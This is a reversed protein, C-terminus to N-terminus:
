SRERLRRYMMLGAGSLMASAAITVLNLASFGTVALEPEPTPSPAPPIVISVTVTEISGTYFESNSVATASLVVDQSQTAPTQAALTVTVTRTQDWEVNSWSLTTPSVSVGQAQSASFDLVVSCPATECIIPQTLGFSIPASQGPTLTLSGPTAIIRSSAFAPQAFIGVALISAALGFTILPKRM